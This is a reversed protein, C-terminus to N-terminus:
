GCRRYFDDMHDIEAHYIETLFDRIAHIVAMFLGKFM